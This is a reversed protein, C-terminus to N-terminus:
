WGRSYRAKRAEVDFFAILNELCFGFIPGPDRLSIIQDKQDSGFFKFFSPKARFREPSKIFWLCDLPLYRLYVDLRYGHVRSIEEGMALKAIMYSFDIGAALTIRFCAPVRPNIEMVKPTADRPDTIFDFDAFGHWGMAVLLRYANDIIEPFLVTRNLVSSGGSIPFYRLKSYVIGAKLQQDRDLFLDAKYQLDGSPIYEQIHCEGYSAKVTEYTRRLEQKKQVLSIGRAGSSINAKVLVPYVAREAIREINEEDPFYTQPCPVGHAMATKLTKSKDRAKMFIDYPPIPLRTHKEVRERQATLIESSIDDTPLVFDYPRGQALEIIREAFEVPCDKPSPYLVRRNPYKSCFGMNIRKHSGATVDFGRRRLSELVPLACQMETDLVLCSPM